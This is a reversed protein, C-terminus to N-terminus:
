RIRRRNSARSREEQVPGVVMIAVAFLYMAAILLPVITNLMEVSAGFPGTSSLALEIVELGATAYVIALVTAAMAVLASYKVRAAIGM